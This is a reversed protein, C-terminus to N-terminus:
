DKVYTFMNMRFKTDTILGNFYKPDFYVGINRKQLYEIEELTPEHRITLPNEKKLEKIIMKLIEKNM